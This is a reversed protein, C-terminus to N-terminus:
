GYSVKEMPSAGWILTTKGKAFVFKAEEGIAQFGDDSEIIFVDKRKEKLLFRDKVPSDRKPDFGILKDGVGVIARDSWRSRYVGEYNKLNKETDYQDGSDTFHYVTQYVGDTIARTVRDTTNTLVIVGIDNEPDLSINTIFGGFGGSHGVIKRSGLNYIITGLGYWENEKKSKWQERFMEEKSKTSLLLRNNLSLASILEALDLVNSVFGTASAYSKTEIHPVKEREKDPIIRTYGAALNKITKNFDPHTNEMGLKKIINEAVYKEYSISSVKKIIQGLIAFGFNTYKFRSSIPITSQNKGAAKILESEDPFKDTVWHPSGAERSLGGSHSLLDKITILSNSKFWPLYKTAPDDLNLKGREVLQMICITTFVKSISAIRYCTGPDAKIGYESDSFGFGSKYVLKGKYTIGISIGPIKEYKIKLPLWYGLIKATYDIATKTNM